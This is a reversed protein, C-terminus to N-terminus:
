SVPEKILRLCAWLIDIASALTPRARTQLTHASGRCSCQHGSSRGRVRGPVRPETNRPLEAKCVLSEQGACKGGGSVRQRARQRGTAAPRPRATMGLGPCPPQEPRARSFALTRQFPPTAASPAGFCGLGGWAGSKGERAICLLGLGWAGPRRLLRGPEETDGKQAGRGWGGGQCRVQRPMHEPQHAVVYLAGDAKVRHDLRGRGLAEVAEAPRHLGRKCRWAAHASCSVYTPRKAKKKPPRARM